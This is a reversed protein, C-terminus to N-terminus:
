HRLKATQWDKAGISSRGSLLMFRRAHHWTHKCAVAATSLRQVYTLGSTPCGEFSPCIRLASLKHAASPSDCMGLGIRTPFIEEFHHNQWLSSPTRNSSEHSYRQLSPELATGQPTQLLVFLLKGLQLLVNLLLETLYLLSASAAFTREFEHNSTPHCYIPM